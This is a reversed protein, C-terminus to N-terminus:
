ADERLTLQDSEEAVLQLLLRIDCNFGTVLDFGGAWGDFTLCELLESGQTLLRFVLIM